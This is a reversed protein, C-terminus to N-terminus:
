SWAASAVFSEIQYAPMAGAKRAAEKGRWFVALMPISQINLRAALDSVAETDIKAVLWRGCNRKAVIEVQPGVVRCPGCWAAWFDVLVPLRSHAIMADFDAASAVDVPAAPAEIAAHCQGCRTTEGLRDFALRNHQGCSACTVVVGRGDARLTSM